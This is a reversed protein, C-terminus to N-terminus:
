KSRLFEQALNKGIGEIIHACDFYYGQAIYAHYRASEREGTQYLEAAQLHHRAALQLQVAAHQHLEMGQRAAEPASLPTVDSSRRESACKGDARGAAPAIMGDAEGARDAITQSIFGQGHSPTQGPTGNAQRQEM